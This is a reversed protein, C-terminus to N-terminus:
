FSLLVSKLHKSTFPFKSKLSDKLEIACRLIVQTLAISKENKNKLILNILSFGFIRIKYDSAFFIEIDTIQTSFLLDRLEENSDAKRVPGFMCMDLIWSINYHNIHTSEGINLCHQYFQEAPYYFFGIRQEESLFWQWFFDIQKFEIEDLFRQHFILKSSSCLLSKFTKSATWFDIM